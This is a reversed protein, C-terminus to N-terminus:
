INTVKPEVTTEVEVGSSLSVFAGTTETTTENKEEEEDMYKQIDKM